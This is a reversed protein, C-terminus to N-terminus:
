TGIRLASIFRTRITAPAKAIIAQSTGARVASAPRRNKREDPSQQAGAGVQPPQMSTSHQLGFFILHFFHLDSHMVCDQQAGVQAAGTVHAAGAGEHQAGAGDQQAGAGEHQADAGDQAAGAASVAGAATGASVVSPLVVGGGGASGPFYNQM